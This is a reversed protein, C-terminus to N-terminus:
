MTPYIPPALPQLCEEQFYSHQPYVTTPSPPQYHYAWSGDLIPPPLDPMCFSNESHGKSHQSFAQSSLYHVGAYGMYDPQCHDVMIPSTETFSGFHPPQPYSVPVTNTAAYEATHEAANFDPSFFYITQGAESPARKSGEMGYVAPTIPTSPAMTQNSGYVPSPLSHHQEEHIPSSPLIYRNAPSTSMEHAFASPRSTASQDESYADSEETKRSPIPRPQSQITHFSTNSPLPPQSESSRKPASNKKAGSLRRSGDYKKRSPKTIHWKKLRSRLQSESPQFDRTQVLKIVQKLPWEEDKYLKTILMRKTEWIDPSIASKM